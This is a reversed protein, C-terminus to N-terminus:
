IVFLVERFFELPEGFVVNCTRLGHINPSQISSREIFKQLSCVIDLSIVMSCYRFQTSTALLRHGRLHITGTSIFDMVWPLNILQISLVKSSFRKIAKDPIAFSGFSALVIRKDSRLDVNSSIFFIFFLTVSHELLNLSMSLFSSTLIQEAITWANSGVLIEM